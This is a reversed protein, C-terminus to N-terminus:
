RKNQLGLMIKFLSKSNALKSYLFMVRQIRSPLVWDRGDHDFDQIVGYCLCYASDKKFYLRRDAILTFM